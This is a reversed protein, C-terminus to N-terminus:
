ALPQQPRTRTFLKWWHGVSKTWGWAPPKVHPLGKRLSSVLYGRNVAGREILQRAVRKVMNVPIAFAVGSNSGSHSAIATNIGIM